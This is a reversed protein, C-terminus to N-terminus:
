VVHQVAAALTFGYGEGGCLGLMQVATSGICLDMNTRVQVRWVERHSQILIDGGRTHSQEEM